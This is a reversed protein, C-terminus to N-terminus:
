ELCTRDDDNANTNLSIININNKIPLKSIPSLSEKPLPSFFLKNKSNKKSNNTNNSNERQMNSNNNGGFSNNNNNMDEATKLVMQFGPNLYNNMDGIPQEINPSIVGKGVAKTRFSNIIGNAGGNGKSKKRLNANINKGKIYFLRNKKHVKIGDEENSGNENADNTTPCYNKGVRDTLNEQCAETPSYDSNAIAKETRETDGELREVIEDSRDVETEIFSKKGGSERRSNEGNIGELNEMVNMNNDGSNNSENENNGNFSNENFQELNKNNKPRASIVKRINKEERAEVTANAMIDDVMDKVQQQYAGGRNKIILNEINDYDLECYKKGKLYFKHRKIKEITIREEPDPCLIRTLLDISSRSLCEPIEPECELIQGFLVDNNEGEFPLYGCLMAYLIIGCCWVDTKFGDYTPSYIIEPAAYSPSGCKTKLLHMGDFEHSLGFDIIKLTNDETLLLNEPKLDRHAIGKSHIHELGNILQYFFIAAEKDNLREREVIYDFLEGKECYEMIIYYYKEDELIDFVYIVNIHNFKTIIQNEKFVSNKMKIKIKEKNLIKIAFEEGTPKYIAKKVKGFNGKGIDEKLEYDGIETCDPSDDPEDPCQVDDQNINGNNNRQNVHNETTKNGKESSM